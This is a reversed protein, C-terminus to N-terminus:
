HHKDKNPKPRLAEPDLRQAEPLDYDQQLSLLYSALAQARRKPKLTENGDADVEKEFLFPYSPKTSGKVVSAPSYLYRYYWLPDNQRMGINSLDPGVRLQGVLVNEQRIYDRAVSARRGYGREYDSGFGPRRVQQTHCAACGLDTYVAKGQEALGLPYPPFFPEGAITGGTEEDLEQTSPQLDGYQYQATWILGLWSSAM